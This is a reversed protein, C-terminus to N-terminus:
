RIQKFYVERIENLVKRYEETAYDPYTWDWTAFGGMKIDSPVSRLFGM